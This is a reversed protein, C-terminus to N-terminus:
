RPLTIRRAPRTLTLKRQGRPTALQVDIRQISPFREFLATDVFGARAATGCEFEFSADLDAHGAQQEAPDPEGLQLAASSLQVAGSRCSGAPDVMFLAGRLTTVMAEVRGREAANRPAREFGLLNDLPSSMQVSIRNSDVAIDIQVVGHQHSGLPQAAFVAGISAIALLAAAIGRWSM